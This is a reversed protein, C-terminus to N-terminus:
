TPSYVLWRVCFLESCTVDHEIVVDVGDYGVCCREQGLQISGGLSGAHADGVLLISCWLAPTDNAVAVRIHNGAGNVGQCLTHMSDHLVWLASGVVDDSSIVQCVGM